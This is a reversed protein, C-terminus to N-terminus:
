SKPEDNYGLADQVKQLLVKTDVVWQEHAVVDEPHMDKIEDESLNLFPNGLVTELAIEIVSLEYENINLVTEKEEDM